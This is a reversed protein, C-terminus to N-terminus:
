IKIEDTIEGLKETAEYLDRFIANVVTLSSKVKQKKEKLITKFVATNVGSVEELVTLVEENELPPQKGMLM